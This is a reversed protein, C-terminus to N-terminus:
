NQSKPFKRLQVTHSSIGSSIYTVNDHHTVSWCTGTGTIDWNQRVPVCQVLLAIMQGLCLILLAAVMAFIGIRWQKTQKIRLMMLAVSVKISTVSLNWMHRTIYGLKLAQEAGALSTPARGETQLMIALTVAWNVVTVVVAFTMVHDDWQLNWYPVIRSYMRLAYTLLAVGLLITTSGVVRPLVSPTDAPLSSLPSVTAMTSNERDHFTSFDCHRKRSSFFPYQNAHRCLHLAFPHFYPTAGLFGLISGSWSRSLTNCKVRSVPPAPMPTHSLSACFHKLGGAPKSGIQIGRREGGGQATFHVLLMGSPRLNKSNKSVPLAALRSYQALQAGEDRTGQM